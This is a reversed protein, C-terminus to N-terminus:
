AARRIPEPAEFDFVGAPPVEEYEAETLPPVPAIRARPDMGAERAAAGLTRAAARLEEERHTAMVTLRLRSTTPPVTPPCLSQAFVGRSLAGECIQMAREQEGIALTLIQARVEGVDFGESALPRECRPAM